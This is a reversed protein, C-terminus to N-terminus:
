PELDAVGAATRSEGTAVLPKTCDGESPELEVVGATLGLEGTAVLPKTCIGDVVVILRGIAVLLKTCVGDTVSAAVTLEGTAALVKTCDGEAESAADGLTDLGTESSMWDRSVDSGYRCGSDFGGVGVGSGGEGITSRVSATDTGGGTLRGLGRAVVGM